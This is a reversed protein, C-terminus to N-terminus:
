AAAAPQEVRLIVGYGHCPEALAAVICFTAETLPLFRRAKKELPNM